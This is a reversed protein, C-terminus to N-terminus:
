GFISSPGSHGTGPGKINGKKIMEILTNKEENRSIMWNNSVRIMEEIKQYLGNYYNEAKKIKDVIHLFANAKQEIFGIYKKAEDSIDYGNGGSLKQGYKQVTNSLENKQKKIEESIEKIKVIKADYNEIYKKHVAEETTKRDLIEVFIPIINEDENLGEYIPNIIGMCKDSLEYLKLIQARIKEEDATLKNLGPKDGPINNELKERSYGLFEFDKSSKIIDDSQKKDYKSTNQLNQIYNQIATIFKFNIENSPKRIWLANGYKQRQQNDDAEEKKFSNLTRQLQTILYNSKNMINQMKGNLGMTGGIKQIENIKEWLYGPFRSIGNDGEKKREILHKPLRLNQIFFIVSKETECQGINERLYSDMKSRFNNIMDRTMQPVISDLGSSLKNYQEKFKKKNEGIFLDDPLIPNMLDKKEIKISGPKPLAQHYIRENKDYMDQGLAQEDSLTKNFNDINIHNGCDNISKQCELLEEVARGQFYLAEGYGEGVEEFKKMASDKLKSYMLYKYFYIRNNLYNRFESNGGNSTPSTNSLSFAKSYYDVICCLIKAHLLFEKKSTIEAIQLIYKQGAILSLKECYELHTPYLDYPLESQELSLYAEDKLLRFLCVSKKFYNVADKKINKDEKSEKGLELGLMYYIVALNYIANYYEFNIKHSKWQKEKIIDTWIFDIKCSYNDKGFLMKSKIVLLQNIYSTLILRQQATQDSSLSKINAIKSIVERNQNMERFLESYKNMSSSGYKLAFDNLKTFIDVKTARKLICPRM